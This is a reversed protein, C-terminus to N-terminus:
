GLVLAKRGSQYQNQAVSCCRCRCGHYAYGSHTGHPIPVKGVRRSHSSNCSLHSFAINGLDWFVEPNDLWAEKHEISLQRESEIVKKCRYCIDLGLSTVLKFLIKKKLRQMATGYPMGLARQKNDNSKDSDGKVYYGRVM